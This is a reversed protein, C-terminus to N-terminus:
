YKKPFIPFFKQARRYYENATELYEDSKSRKPLYEKDIEYINDM